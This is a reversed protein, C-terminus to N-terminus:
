KDAILESSSNVQSEGVKGVQRAGIKKRLMSYHGWKNQDTSTTLLSNKMSLSLKDIKSEIVITPSQSCPFLIFM